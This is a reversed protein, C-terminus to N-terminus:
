SAPEPLYRNWEFPVLTFFPAALLGEVEGSAWRSQMEGSLRAATAVPDEDLYCYTIQPGRATPRTPSPPLSAGTGGSARWGLCM